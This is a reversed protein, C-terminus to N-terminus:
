VGGEYPKMSGWRQGVSVKVSLGIRLQMANNMISRLRPVYEALCDDAIIFLLEDHVQAVMRIGGPPLQACWRDVGIMALKIVDAASGQVVTNVAQREAYSRAAANAHDINPLRRIRNLITRVLKQARCSKVVTQCFATSVAFSRKFTSTLQAAEQVSLATINSLAAPAMGYLLGYTVRKAHERQEPTVATPPCSHLVAAICTHVDHPQGFARILQADGSLHALMRLEMQEYDFAVLRHGAPAFLADRVNVVSCLPAHAPEAGDAETSPGPPDRACPRPEHLGPGPQLGVQVASDTLVHPNPVPQLGPSPGPPDAAWDGAGQVEMPQKPLNQVNPEVSSLRGTGTSTQLFASHLAAGDSDQYAQAPLGRVYTGLMKSFRRYEVILAPLPHHAYLLKLVEEGTTPSLARPLHRHLKLRDFLVAACEKHSLLNFRDGVCRTVRRSVAVLRRELAAASAAFAETDLPCGHATMTCLIAGVKAEVDLFPQLVHADDMRCRLRTWLQRTQRMRGQLRGVEDSPGLAAPAECYRAYLEDFSPCADASELMWGATRLDYVSESGCGGYRCALPLLLAAGDFVLKPAATATMLHRLDDWSEEASLDLLYFEGHLLLCAAALADVASRRFDSGPRPRHGPADYNTHPAGRFLAAVCLPEPAEEGPPLLHLFDEFAVSRLCATPCAGAGVQTWTRWHAARLDLWPDPPPKARGRRPEAAAKAPKSARDQAGLSRRKAPAAPRPRKAPPDTEPFESARAAATSSAAADADLPQGMPNSPQAVAASAEVPVLPVLGHGQPGPHAQPPPREPPLSQATVFRNPRATSDTPPGARAPECAPPPPTPPVSTGEPPATPPASPPAHPLGTGELLARGPPATGRSDASVSAAAHPTNPFAGSLRPPGPSLGRDPGANRDSSAAANPDRDHGSPRHRELDLAPPPGRQLAADLVTATAGCRSAAEDARLVRSPDVPVAHPAARPGEAGPVAGSIRTADPPPAEPRAQLGSRSVPPGHPATARPGATPRLKPDLAASPSPPHGATCVRPASAARAGSAPAGPTARGEPQLLSFATAARSTGHAPRPAPTHAPAAAAGGSAARSTNPLPVEPAAAAPSAPVPVPQAGGAARRKRWQGAEAADAGDEEERARRKKLIQAAVISVQKADPAAGGKELAKKNLLSKAVISASQQENKARCYEDRKASLRRDRQCSEYQEIRQLMSLAFTSKPKPPEPASPSGPGVARAAPPATEAPPRHAPGGPAKSDHSWAPPGHPNPAGAPVPPARYKPARGAILGYMDVVERKAVHTRNSLDDLAIAFKRGRSLPKPPDREGRTPPEAAGRLGASSTSTAAHAGGAISTASTGIHLDHPIAPTGSTPTRPQPGEAKPPRTATATGAAPDPNLKHILGPPHAAPCGDPVLARPHPASPEGPASRSPCESKVCPRPAALSAAAGSTAFLAFRNQQRAGHMGATLRFISPGHEQFSM